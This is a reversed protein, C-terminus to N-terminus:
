RWNRRRVVDLVGSRFSGSMKLLKSALWLASVMPLQSTLLLLWFFTATARYLTTVMPWGKGKVAQGAISVKRLRRRPDPRGPPRRKDAPPGAGRAAPSSAAPADTLARRGGSM